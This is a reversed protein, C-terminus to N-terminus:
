ESGALSELRWAVGVHPVFIDAGQCRGGAPTLFGALKAAAENPLGVIRWARDPAAACRVRPLSSPLWAATHRAWPSAVGLRGAGSRHDIRMLNHSLVGDIVASVSLRTALSRFATLLTEVCMQHGLVGDNTALLATVLRVAPYEPLRPNSRSQRAWHDM